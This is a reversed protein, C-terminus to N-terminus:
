SSIQIERNHEHVCKGEGQAERRGGQPLPILHPGNDNEDRAAIQDALVFTVLSLAIFRQLM